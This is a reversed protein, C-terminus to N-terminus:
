QVVNHSQYISKDRKNTCPLRSGLRSVALNSLVELDHDHVVERAILHPAVPAAEVPPDAAAGATAGVEDNEGGKEIVLTGVEVMVAAGIAITGTGVDEMNMMNTEEATTTIGGPTLLLITTRDEGITMGMVIMQIGDDMHHDVRIMAKMAFRDEEITTESSKMGTMKLGVLDGATMGMQSRASVILCM